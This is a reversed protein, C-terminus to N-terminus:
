ETCSTPKTDVIIEDLWLDGAPQSTVTTAWDLGCYVHDPIPQPSAKVVRADTVESGDVFLHTTGTMGIPIDFQLCTWRDTPLTVTSSEGWGANTYDNVVMHGDAVTGAAIGNGASDAFNLIQNFTM